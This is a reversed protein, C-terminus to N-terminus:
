TNDRSKSGVRGLIAAIRDFECQICTYNEFGQKDENFSLRDFRFKVNELEM